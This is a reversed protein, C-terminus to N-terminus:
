EFKSGQLLQDFDEISQEQEMTKKMPSPPAHKAFVSNRGSDNAMTNFSGQTRNDRVGQYNGKMSKGVIPKNKDKFLPSQKAM